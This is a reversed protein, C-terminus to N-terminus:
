PAALGPARCFASDTLTRLFALLERQEKATLPIGLRGNPQRLVPDLTPSDVLGHDYHALVQALTAFRGDHMYPATLACNRLSPVKFRGRDAPLFTIAVRGSDLPFSRSLGNNRFSDDTFLDTAHCSSCKRQLLARGRLEQATLTGGAEHRVYRDYRSSASILAATFQALARLLQYSTIPGPGYARAFQRVYVPDANLKALVSPLTAGMELPNTLPALPLTELNKPGGDAFFTHKWRLNQLAPANRRGRRGGVGPSIREPSAFATAQRHCSACSVTGDHALRRDYFLQRGLEFAERAPVPAYVPAPFNRPLAAVLASRAAADARKSCYRALGLALLLGAACAVSAWRM